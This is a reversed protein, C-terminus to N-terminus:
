QSVLGREKPFFNFLGLKLEIERWDLTRLKDLVRLGDPCSAYELLEGFPSAITFCLKKGKISPNQLLYKLFARKEVTESCGDFIERARRAVSVLTAVTNQYESDANRHESQEIELLQLQDM